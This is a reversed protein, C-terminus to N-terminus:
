HGPRATPRQYRLGSLFHCALFGGITWPRSRYEGTHKKHCTRKGRQLVLNCLLLFYMMFGYRLVIDLTYPVNPHFSRTAFDAPFSRSLGSLFAGATGALWFRRLAKKAEDQRTPQVVANTDSM